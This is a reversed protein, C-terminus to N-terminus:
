MKILECKSIGVINEQANNLIEVESGTVVDATRSYCYVFWKLM